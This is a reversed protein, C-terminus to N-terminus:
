FYRQVIADLVVEFDGLHNELISWIEEQDIEDYLHVARNRFQIMRILDDRHEAPLVGERTLITIAEAYTKPLGLGERAIIHNAADLIAEVAVQLIRITADQSKWDELYAAKGEGRIQRLRRLSDRVFQVKQRLIDRDPASDNAPPQETM